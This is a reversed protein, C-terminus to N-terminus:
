TEAAPPIVNVGVNWRKVKQYLLVFCWLKKESKFDREHYIEERPTEEWEPLNLELTICCM